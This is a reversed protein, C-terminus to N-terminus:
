AAKVVVFMILVFLLLTTNYNKVYLNSMSKRSRELKLEGRTIM